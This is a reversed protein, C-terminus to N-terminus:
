YAKTWKTWLNQEQRNLDWLQNLNLAKNMQELNKIGLGGERKDLCTTSWSLHHSGKRGHSWNIFIQCLYCQDFKAGDKTSYLDKGLLFSYSPPSISYANEKWGELPIPLAGILTYLLNEVWSRKNENMKAVSLQSKHTNVSLGSCQLFEELAAKIAIISSCRESSFLFLDDAFIIHKLDIRHCKPHHYYGNAKTLVHLLRSLYEM